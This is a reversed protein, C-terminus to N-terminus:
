DRRIPIVEDCCGSLWAAKLQEYNETGTSAETPYPLGIDQVRNGQPKGGSNEGAAGSGRRRRSSPKPPRREPEPSPSPRRAAKPRAARPIRAERGERAPKSAEAAAKPAAEPEKYGRQEVDHAHVLGYKCAVDLLEDIDISMNLEKEPVGADYSKILEVLAKQAAVSGDGEVDAVRIKKSPKSRSVKEAPESAAKKKAAAQTGVPVTEHETYRPKDVAVSQDVSNKRGKMANAACANCLVYDCPDCSWLTRSVIEKNCVDCNAEDTLDFNEKVMCHKKSCLPGKTPPASVPETKPEPEPEPEPKASKSAETRSSSVNKAPVPEPQDVSKRRAKMESGACNNCLVYDCPECNWLTKSIIECGCKDCNAEDMLGFNEKVMCHKKTCLPAKPAGGANLDMAAM